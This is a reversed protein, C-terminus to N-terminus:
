WCRQDQGKGLAGTGFSTTSPDCCRTRRLTNGFVQCDSQTATDYAQRSAEPCDFNGKHRYPRVSHAITLCYTFPCMCGHDAYQATEERAKPLRLALITELNYILSIQKIQAVETAYNSLSAYPFRRSKVAPLLTGCVCEMPFEWSAWVPGTMRMSPAIHLLAHVTLPCM